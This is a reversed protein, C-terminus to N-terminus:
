NRQIVCEGGAAKLSQCIESAQVRTTYPGLQARYFVGREGLDARRITAQQGGLISAFRSQLQQWEAQAEAETKRSSVQV